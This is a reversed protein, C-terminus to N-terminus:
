WSESKKEEEKPPNSKFFFVFSQPLDDLLFRILVRFDVKSIYLKQDSIIIFFFVYNRNKSFNYIKDVDIYTKDLNLKYKEVLDKNTNEAELKSIIKEKNNFIGLFNNDIDKIQSDLFRFKLDNVKSFIKIKFVNFYIIKDSFTNQRYIYPNEYINFKFDNVIQYDNLLDLEIKIKENEFCNQVSVYKLNEDKTQCSYISFFLFTIFCFFLFIKIKKFKKVSNKSM